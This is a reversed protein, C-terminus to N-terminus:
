FRVRYGLSVGILSYSTQYGAVAPDEFSGLGQIRLGATLANKESLQYEGSFQLLLGVGMRRSFFHNGGVSRYGDATRLHASGGSSLNLTPGAELMMSYKSGKFRYGLLLPIDLSTVSNYYRAKTTITQPVQVTGIQETRSGDPNEIITVVGTQSVTTQETSESSIKSNIRSYSIGSRLSLGNPRHHGALAQFTLGELSKEDQNSGSDGSGGGSRLPLSIALMPEATWYPQPRLKRLRRREARALRRADRRALRAALREARRAERLAMRESKRALRDARRAEQLALRDAKRSLRDARREALLQERRAKQAAKSASREALLQRKRAQKEARSALLSAKRADKDISRQKRKALLLQRRANKDASRQERKALADAQLQRRDEAMALKRERSAIKRDIAAQRRAEREAAAFRARNRKNIERAQKEMVKAVRLLSDRTIADRRQREKQAVARQTQVAKQVREAKQREEEARAELAIRAAKEAAKQKEAVKKMREKEAQAVAAAEAEERLLQVTSPTGKEANTRPLSPREARKAELRALRAAEKEAEEERRREEQALRAVRQQEARQEEKARKAAALAAEKAAKRAKREQRADAIAQREAEEREKEARKEERAAIREAERDAELRSEIGERKKRRREALEEAAKRKRELLVEKEAELQEKKLKRAEMALREAEAEEAALEAALRAQEEREIELAALRAAEKKEAMRQEAEERAQRATMERAAAQELALRKNTTEQAKARLAELREQKEAEALRYAELRAAEEEPSLETYTPVTGTRTGEISEAANTVALTSKKNVQLKEAAIRRREARTAELEAMKAELRADAERQRELFALQQPTLGSAPKSETIAISTDKTGSYFVTLPNNEPDNIVLMLLNPMVVAPPFHEPSNLSALPSPGTTTSATDIIFSLPAVGLRESAKKETPPTKTSLLLFFGMGAAGILCLLWFPLGPGSRQALRPEVKDWLADTDVPTTHQQLSQRIKNEFPRNLM